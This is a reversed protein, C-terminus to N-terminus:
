KQSLYYNGFGNIIGKGGFSITTIQECKWTNEAIDADTYKMPKRDYNGEGWVQDTINVHM